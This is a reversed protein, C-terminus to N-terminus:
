KGPIDGWIHKHEQLMLRVNLGDKLVWDALESAKKGWVPQFVIESALMNSTVFDRAFKYDRRDAIVFKAVDRSRLLPINGRRLTKEMKSAPCKVDLSITVGRIGLYPSIDLSGGTEVVTQHGGKSLRKLLTVCEKQLLPEGGTLCVYKTKYPAIRAIVEDISMEKGKGFSYATDCWTCRLNCQATRIFATRRGTDPGEGQFSHFIETIRM